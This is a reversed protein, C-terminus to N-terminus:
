EFITPLAHVRVAHRGPAGTLAVRASAREHTGLHRVTTKGAAVVRGGARVVAYVQAGYQPVDSDNVLSVRVAAAPVPRDKRAHRDHHAVARRTAERAPLVSTAIRPLAGGMPAAGALAWPRGGPLPRRTTFVWTGTEGAGIAPVHTQFWAFGRGRNLPVRQGGRDHVGVAIPVDTLAETGRNRLEVVLAGGHRGRVLSVGVVRVDRSPRGLRLPRRGDLTREAVLKARANKQQTSVCGALGGCGIALALASSVIRRGSGAV